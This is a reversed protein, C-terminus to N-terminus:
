QRDCLKIYPCYQCMKVDECMTFNHEKTHLEKLKEDLLAFKEEFMDEAVIDGSNLDYYSCEYVEGLTSALLHYFQLQFNTNKEFPKKITKPIKGSKYDLVYYKGDKVDIRDIVGVIKFGQYECSLSAENQYIKYNDNFRDIENICFSDLKELWIDVNLRLVQDHESKLYLEKRLDILLTEHNSYSSNKDYLSKLAEHIYIGVIRDDNENKPISANPIKKIYQFYYRRKCELYTKFRSSSLEVQSFDYELILDKQQYHPLQKHPSFLIDHLAFSSAKSSIENIKFEELLRSPQNQSDEVYSIAVYSAKDFLMKYYYKQLNERDKATPIGAHFKIESSLFLDKQSKSPVLGENFDVVIVAKFSVGRTELVEMVTIKGGRVDDIRISKLRNLFLYLVRYFPYKQLSNLLKSFLYLEKKYLTAEESDIGDVFDTFIKILENKDFRKSWLSIKADAEELTYGLRKIRYRNEFNRELYYEYLASLKQYIKSQTYSFGMAFNFNNENDFLALKDSFSGKPLIVVIDKAEIGLKIFDYVKKKIYATQLLNNSLSVSEYSITSSKYPEKELVKKNTIDLVYRYDLELAYGYQNFNDIMKQNYRNTLIHLHLSSVSACERLLKFEFGNLYGELYFEIQDFSEIFERNLNYLSPLLIKDVFGNEDLLNKYNKLLEKLIELHESYSAYVDADMLEDIEVYESALEEFFGFLFKANKLFTFFEKDIKLDQFRQFESAKNLLIVRTDEDIFTREPIVVAKKEFEGITMFKPLLSDENLSSQLNERIARSTSYVVLRNNQLM